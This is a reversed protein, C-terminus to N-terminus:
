PGMATNRLSQEITFLRGLEETMDMDRLLLVDDGLPTVIGAERYQQTISM